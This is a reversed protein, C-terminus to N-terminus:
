RCFGCDISRLLARFKCYCKFSCDIPGKTAISLLYGRPKRDRRYGSTSGSLRLCDGNLNKGIITSVTLGIEYEVTIHEALGCKSNGLFSVTSGTSIDDSHIFEDLLSICLVFVGESSGDTINNLIISIPSKHERVLTSLNRTREYLVPVCERKLVTANYADLSFVAVVLFLLLMLKGVTGYQAKLGTATRSVQIRNVM